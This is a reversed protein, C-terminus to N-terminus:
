SSEATEGAPREYAQVSNKEKKGYQTGILGHLVNFYSQQETEWCHSRVFLNDANRVLEAQRSPRQFLELVCSSFHEVNGPEFFQVATDDFIDELIKLRSALVPIGMVAYELVKTPTAISMHADPLATYIGIDAQVIQRPVEEVPLLPRFEVFSSVRLQEALAVLEDVHPTHPGIILLRIQPIKEILLPLARIAVDLGYRPAITGPYILTFHNGVTKRIQTYRSRDFWRPDAVNNVVTIKGAPIGRAILNRKFNANATIIAHALSASLREQLRLLKVGLGDPKRRYKSTYFEPMPDHIDLIVKTGLVRPILAAFVLFDPMNHVHIVAYRRKLHLILLWCSFWVLAIVYSLFYNMSRDVLCTLPIAFTKITDNPKQPLAQLDRLCLIDVHVGADALAEAYRRVRPDSHYNKHVIMCVNM